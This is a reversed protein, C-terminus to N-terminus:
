SRALLDFGEATSRSRALGMVELASLFGGVNESSVVASVREKKLEPDLISIKRDSYRNLEAVIEEIPAERFVLRRSTWSREAATDARDLRWGTSATTLQYGANMDMRAHPGGAGSHDEVRVRGEVLTVQLGEPKLYVDFETGLARVSKGDATVIFPHQPDKAVKFFARGRTLRAYRNAGDRWFGIASNTDLVALSGDPLTITALKGIPTQYTEVVPAAVPAPRKDTGALWGIGGGILVIGGVVAAASRLVFGLRRQRLDKRAQERLALITPDARVLDLRSWLFDVDDFEARHEASAELWADLEMQEAASTDGSRLRAFRAIAQSQANDPTAPESM